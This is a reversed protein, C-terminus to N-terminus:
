EELIYKWVKGLKILVGERIQGMQRETKRQTNKSIVGLGIVDKFGREGDKEIYDKEVVM